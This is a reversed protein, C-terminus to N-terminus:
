AAPRCLMTILERTEPLFRFSGAYVLQRFPKEKLSRWSFDDLSYNFMVSDLVEFDAVQMLQVLEDRTFEHHHGTFPVASEYITTAPVLPSEGKVLLKLRWLLFAINPVEVVLAGNPVSMKRINGMLTRLSHPYHELVAMLTVADFTGPVVAGEEFPDFDHILVGESRIFSFLEDFASGYYQLSETMAVDYGLRALAVPWVGWFGGVDCVNKVDVVGPHLFYRYAALYRRDSRRLYNEFDYQEGSWGLNHRAVDSQMAPNVYKLVDDVAGNYARLFEEESRPKM